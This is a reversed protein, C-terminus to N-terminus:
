SPITVNTFHKRYKPFSFISFDLSFIQTVCDSSRRFFPIHRLIYWCYHAVWLSSPLCESRNSPYTKLTKKLFFKEITPFYCGIIHTIDLAYPMLFISFHIKKLSFYPTEEEKGFTNQVFSEFSHNKM